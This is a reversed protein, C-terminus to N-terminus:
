LMSVYTGDPMSVYTGDPMSVYSVFGDSFQLEDYPEAVMSPEISSPDIAFQEDLRLQAHEQALAAIRRLFPTCDYYCYGTRRGAMDICDTIELLGSSKMTLLHRRIQRESLCFHAAVDAITCCVEPQISEKVFMIWRVFAMGWETISTQHYFM